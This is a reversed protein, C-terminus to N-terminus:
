SSLYRDVAALLEIVGINKGAPVDLIGAKFSDGADSVDKVTHGSRVIAVTLGARQEKVKIETIPQDKYTVTAPISGRDLLSGLKFHESYVDGGRGSLESLIRLESLGISAGRPVDLTSSREACYGAFSILLDFAAEISLSNKELGSTIDPDFSRESLNRGDGYKITIGFSELKSGLTRLLDITPRHGARALRGLDQAAGPNRVVMASSVGNARM